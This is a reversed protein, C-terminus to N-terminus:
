QEIWGSINNTYTPDVGPTEVETVIDGLNGNYTVTMNGALTNAETTSDGRRGHPNTSADYANTASDRNEVMVRGQFESNGYIKMQERVMIQGDLDVSDDADVTGGLAFDGNTVFQIKASNEPRFKGNGTITISGEAIISLSTLSSKGTGHVSVPGEVYYTSAEPMAGSASWAGGSFTWGTPCTPGAGGCTVSDSARQITGTSTLIWDALNKYDEAKIEPITIPPMGGAKLGDPDLTDDVTGTATIDGSIDESGGGTVNGNAHVNGENGGVTINGNIDLNGGVLIAPNSLITTNTPPIAGTAVSQLVRMITVTTGRPGTGIARLILRDNLSTYASGDETMQVLQPASLAAMYLSSDDDDLIALTYAYQDGITFPGNGIGPIVGNDANVAAAPDDADVLGDAGALLNTTTDAIIQEIARNLGAEAAARAGAYTLENSAMAIDTQGSLTMGTTLGMMVALLLLVIVLAIGKESRVATVPPQMTM